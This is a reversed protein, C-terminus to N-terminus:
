NNQNNNPKLVRKRTNNMSVVNTNDYDNSIQNTEEKVESITKIAEEAAKEEKEEVKNESKLQKTINELKDNLDVSTMLSAFLVGSTVGLFGLSQGVSVITFPSTILMAMSVTSGIGSILFVKKSVNFMKILRDHKKQLENKNM